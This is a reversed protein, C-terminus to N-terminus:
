EELNTLYIDIYFDTVYQRDLEMGEIYKVIDETVYKLDPKIIHAKFSLSDWGIKELKRLKIM